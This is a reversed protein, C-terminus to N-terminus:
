LVNIFNVGTTLKMLMKQVRKKYFLKNVALSQASFLSEYWFHGLFVNIFNVGPTSTFIDGRADNMHIVMGM